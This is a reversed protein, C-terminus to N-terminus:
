HLFKALDARVLAKRLTMDAVHTYIETTSISQHGLLRQVIRIDIGEELLLTAATHRLMHPTVRRRVKSADCAKHVRSRFSATTLPAGRQNVFLYGDISSARLRATAHLKLKGLLDSNTVFVTRERSGKGHVRVQGDITDIDSLRLAVLEAVRIGTTAMLLIGLNTASKLTTTTSSSAGRVLKRLDKRSIARPLRRVQKITLKFQELPSGSIVKTSSLWRFFV